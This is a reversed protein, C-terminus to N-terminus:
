PQLRLEDTPLGTVAELTDAAVRLQPQSEAHADRRARGATLWGPRPWGDQRQQVKGLFTATPVGFPLVM